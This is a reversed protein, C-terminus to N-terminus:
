CQQETLFGRINNFEGIRQSLEWNTKKLFHYHFHLLRDIVVELTLDMRDTTDVFIYTRLAQLIGSITGHRGYGDWFM